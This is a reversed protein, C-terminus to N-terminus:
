NQQKKMSNIIRNTQFDQQEFIDFDVNISFYTFFVGMVLLYFVRATKEVDIDQEFSGSIVGDEIINKFTAVSSKYFDTMIDRIEVDRVGMSLFEICFKYFQEDKKLFKGAETVLKRLRVDASDHANLCSKMQEFYKNVRYQFLELFLQKKSKFYHFLGGKSMQARAAITESNTKDFGTENFCQLAAEFIQEKRKQKQDM